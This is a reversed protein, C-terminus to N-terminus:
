GGGIVTHGLTSRSSMAQSCPCGGHLYRDTHRGSGSDRNGRPNRYCGVGTNTPWSRRIRPRLNCLSPAFILEGSRRSDEPSHRSTTPHQHRSPILWTTHWPRLTGSTSGFSRSGGLGMTVVSTQLMQLWTTGWWSSRMRHVGSSGTSTDWQSIKPSSHLGPKVLGRCAM